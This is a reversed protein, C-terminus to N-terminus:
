HYWNICKCSVLKEEDVLDHLRQVRRLYEHILATYKGGVSYGIMLSSIYVIM